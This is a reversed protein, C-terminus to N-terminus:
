YPTPKLHNQAFHPEGFWNASWTGWLFIWLYGYYIVLLLITITDYYMMTYCLIYYNIMICWLIDYYLMTYWLIDHYIMTFWLIDYYMMTCWLLDYYIMTYWLINYYLMTYLLIVYYIMTYWLLVYYFMTFCRIDYYMMTYWFWLVDYYMVTITHGRPTSTSCRPVISSGAPHRNWQWWAESIVDSPGGDRYIGLKLCSWFCLLQLWVSLISCFVFVWWFGFHWWGLFGPSSTRM